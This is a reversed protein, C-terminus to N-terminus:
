FLDILVFIRAIVLLEYISSKKTFMEHVTSYFRRLKLFEATRFRTKEPQVQHM